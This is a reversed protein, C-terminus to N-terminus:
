QFQTWFDSKQDLNDLSAFFFFFLHRKKKIDNYATLAQQRCACPEQM